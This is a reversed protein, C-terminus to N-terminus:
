SDLLQRMRGVGANLMPDAHFYHFLAGAQRWEAADEPTVLTGAIRGARNIRALTDRVRELVDNPRRQGAPVTPLYGMSQSLDGPGVFFVDIGDVALISDLNDIAEVTEIMAVVLRDEYSDPCGYRVADVVARAQEATNVLPVMLGDAGCNLYRILLSRQHSDPRIIAGGGAGRAAHAMSRVDDFGASGHECDIFIAHAGLESLKAALSISVHNPNIMGVCRGAQLHERLRRGIM